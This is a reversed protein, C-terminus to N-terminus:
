MYVCQRRIENDTYTWSSKVANPKLICCGRDDMSQGLPAAESRVAARPVVTLVAGFSIFAVVAGGVFRNVLTRTKSM